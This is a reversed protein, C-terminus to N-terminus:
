KPAGKRPARKRPATAAVAPDATRIEEGIAQEFTLGGEHAHWGDALGAKYAEPDPVREVRPAMRTVESQVEALMRQLVKAKQEAVVARQTLAAAEQSFAALLEGINIQVDDAM